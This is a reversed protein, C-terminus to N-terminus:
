YGEVIVIGSYTTTSDPATITIGTTSASITLGTNNYVVSAVSTFPITLNNTTWQFDITQDTTTDNEYGNFYFIIKKYFPGYEIPQQLVTGATTGATSNPSANPALAHKIFLQAKGPNLNTNESTSSNYYLNRPSGSWNLVDIVVPTGTNDYVIAGTNELNLVSVKVPMATPSEPVSGKTTGGNHYSYEDVLPSWAALGSATYANPLVVNMFVTGPSQYSVNSGLFTAHGGGTGPLYYGYTTNQLYLNGISMQVAPVVGIACGWVLINDAKILGAADIPGFLIGALGGSLNGYLGSDYAAISPVVTLNKYVGTAMLGDGASYMDIGNMLTWAFTVDTQPNNLDYVLGNGQTSNVYTPIIVQFNEFIVNFNAQNSPRTSLVQDVGICRGMAFPPQTHTGNVRYAVDLQSFDLIVGNPDIVRTSTSEYPANGALVEGILGVTLTTNEGKFWSNSIFLSANFLNDPDDSFGTIVYHGAKIHPIGLRNLASYAMAEQIGSTDTYPPNATSNPNYSDPGFDYGDNYETSLGNAVGKASVTIEPVGPTRDKSAVYWFGDEQIVYQITNPDNAM